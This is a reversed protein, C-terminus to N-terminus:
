KDIIDTQKLMRAILATVEARTMPEKPSLVEQGNGQIIDAAILQAVDAKAWASVDPSDKYGALASTAQEESLAAGSEILRYARAIMSFGQERTIEQNGYFSGDNYGRVIDFENAIAVSGRYWALESVDPFMNEPADQRMLGLGLVVIDAFESRTVNRNPSFTNNGNGKLDLRAAINNVDSRGWHSQVDDFDQPNWIVSYTGNSRIDNILAYYRSEIKTVVTPVHFISGDPNVIVGTTIRNPDIGEPLAIYKPAYGNLQGSRVTKGDKTFTLDLDVPTVLLEYGEAAAKNKANSILADSSRAIDIHVAIDDLAANGLQGSVAGLNMKGGPVPYIALPNSIELSAGKDALQKVVGATLGDVKVDGDKPSRIALKQGNGQSLVENLKDLDVQVSTTSTGGSTSTKGTAFTGNKDNVSTEIGPEVPKTPTVPTTPTVSAPPTSGSNGGTNGGNDGGNNGSGSSERSVTLTYETVNGKTDTVKVVITNTGVNLSLNGSAQGNPVEQWSGNNVSVELKTNPDLVTPLITVAYVSNIVSATYKTTSGNFTPSLGIPTGNLSNLQLGTLVSKATTDILAAKAAQLAKLAEDVQNQTAAENALVEKAKVLEVQYIAWSDTTYNSEDLDTALNVETQLASKDVTVEVLAQRAAQLAALAENVEIQTANLNDLVAQAASLEVQYNAWSETTYNSEDLDTALNVETQLASKNIASGSTYTVKDSPASDTYASDNSKAIVTLDYNGATLPPNLTSLDLKTGSTVEVTVPTGNEPTITVEYKDAHEVSDWALESGTLHVNGPTTLTSVPKLARAFTFTGGGVLQSSNLAVQGAILKTIKNDVLLYYDYLADFDDLQLTIETDEWNGTKEIMLNRAMRTLGEPADAITTVDQNYVNSGNDDSFTLFSKDAVIENPNASNSAKVSNGLAITVNANQDASKSQKQYLGSTDDRGIGTIRNGYGVNDAATWMKTTGDSAVYDTATNNTATGTKLTVGYKFALYSNIRNMEDTTLTKTDDFIILESIQGTLPNTGSSNDGLRLTLKAGYDTFANNKTDGTVGNEWATKQQPSTALLRLKDNNRATPANLQHNPLNAEGSVNNYISLTQNGDDGFFMQVNQSGTPVTSFVANRSNQKVIGFIEQVKMSTNNDGDMKGTGDFAVASNFNGLSENLTVGDNSANTTFVKGTTQDTWSVVKGNTTQVGDSAKLWLAAGKVGGPYEPTEFSTVDKTTTIINSIEDANYEVIVGPDKYPSTVGHTNNVPLYGIKTDDKDLMLTLHIPTGNPLLSSELGTEQNPNTVYRTQSYVATDWNPGQTKTAGIFSLFHWIGGEASWPSVSKFEKFMSAIAFVEGPDAATPEVLHGHNSTAIDVADKFGMTSQRAVYVFHRGNYTRISTKGDTLPAGPTVNVTVSQTQGSIKTFTMNQIAAQIDEYTTDSSFNFVRNTATSQDTTIGSIKIGSTLETIGNSLSGVDVTISGSNVAVTFYGGGADVVGTSGFAASPLQYATASLGVPTGLDITPTEAAKVELPHFPIMALVMVIAMLFSVMRRNKLKM